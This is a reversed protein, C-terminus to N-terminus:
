FRYGFGLSLILPDVDVSVDDDPDGGVVISDFTTDLYKASAGFTWRGKGLGVDLGVNAGIAFDNDPDLEAVLGNGADLVVEDYLVYALMPGAYFDVKRGRTFHINLAAYIPTLRLGDDAVILFDDQQVQRFGIDPSTALAGIELGLRHSLRRELSIGLGTDADDELTTDSDLDDANLDANVNAAFLRLHWKSDEEALAAPALALLLVAFLYVFVTQFRLEQTHM